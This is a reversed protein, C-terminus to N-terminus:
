RHGRSKGCNCMHPRFPTGCMTHTECCENVCSETHPFHYQHDIMHRNVTTLHSPFIHPIVENTVITQEYQRTPSIRQDGFQTPGSQIPLQTTPQQQRWMEIEMPMDMPMMPMQQMPMQMPMMQMPMQQQPFGQPFQENNMDFQNFWNGNNM